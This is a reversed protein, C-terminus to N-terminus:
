FPARSSGMGSVAMARDAAAFDSPDEAWRVGYWVRGRAGTGSEIRGLAMEGRQLATGIQKALNGFERRSEEVYGAFKGDVVLLDFEAMPQDGYSTPFNADYGVATIAVLSGVLSEKTPRDPDQPAGNTPKKWNISM